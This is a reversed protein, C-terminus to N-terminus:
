NEIGQVELLDAFRDFFVGLRDVVTQLTAVANGQTVTTNEAQAAWARLTAIEDALGQRKGERDEAEARADLEAQSLAVVPRTWTATQAVEDDVWFGPGLKQTAPDFVPEAARGEVLIVLNTPAGQLEMGDARPWAKGRFVNTAGDLKFTYTNTLSVPYTIEAKTAASTLLSVFGVLWVVNQFRGKANM